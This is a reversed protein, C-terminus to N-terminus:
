RPMAWWCLRFHLSYIARARQIKIKFALMNKDVEKISELLGDSMGHGAKLAVLLRKLLGKSARM